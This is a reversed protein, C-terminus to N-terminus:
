LDLLILKLNEINKFDTDFTILPIDLYIATAAVIADPLKIKHKQKINKVLQKIEPLLDIVFCSEVLVEIISIEHSTMNQKGYLELETIVSISVQKGMLLSLVERNNGLLHILTNTDCLIRIGSM